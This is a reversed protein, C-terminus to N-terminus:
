STGVARVHPLVAENFSWLERMLSTVMEESTDDRGSEALASKAVNMFFMTRQVEASERGAGMAYAAQKGILMAQCLATFSTHFAPENGHWRSWAQTMLLPCLRDNIEDFSEQALVDRAMSLIWYVAVCEAVGANLVPSAAAKFSAVQDVIAQLKSEESRKAANTDDQAIAVAAVQSSVDRNRDRALEAEVLIAERRKLEMERERLAVERDRTDAARRVPGDPGGTKNLKSIGQSVCIIGYVFGAFTLLNPRGALILLGDVAILFLGFILYGM